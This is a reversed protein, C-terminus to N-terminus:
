RKISEFSQVAQNIYVGNHSKLDQTHMSIIKSGNIYCYMVGELDMGHASGSWKIKATTAGSISIFEIKGKTFNQRKRAVGSLFQLLYQSIGQKLEDDKMPPIEKGTDFINLQLLTKFQGSHEKFFAISKAGQGLEKVIPGKFGNPPTIDGGGFSLAYSNVSLSCLFIFTLLKSM